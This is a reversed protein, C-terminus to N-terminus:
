GGPAASRPRPSVTARNCPAVDASPQAQRSVMFRRPRSSSSGASGPNGRRRPIAEVYGIARPVDDPDLYVKWQRVAFAKPPTGQENLQDGFPHIGDKLLQRTASSKLQIVVNEIWRESTTSKETAGIVLHVHDPLIACSWIPLKSKAVYDAFGHAVSRAQLGSFLVPPRALATKAEHRLANNHKRYAVSRRVKTTTANGFRFLEWSAVFDSWSGR